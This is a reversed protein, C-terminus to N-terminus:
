LMFLISKKQLPSNTKISIYAYALKTETILFYFYFECYVNNTVQMVQVFMKLNLFLLETGPLDLENSVSESQECHFREPNIGFPKVGGAASFDKGNDHCCRDSQVANPAINPLGRFFTLISEQQYQMLMHGKEREISMLDGKQGPLVQGSLSLM